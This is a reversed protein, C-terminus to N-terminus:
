KAIRFASVPGGCNGVVFMGGVTLAYEGPPLAAPRSIYLQGLDKQRKPNINPIPDGYVLGNMPVYQGTAYRRNENSAFLRELKILKMAPVVLGLSAYRDIDKQSGHVLSVFALTDDSRLTVSSTDGPIYCYEKSGREKKSKLSELPQLARTTADFRYSQGGYPFVPDTLNPQPAQQAAAVAGFLVIAATLLALRRM